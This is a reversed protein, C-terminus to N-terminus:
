STNLGQDLPQKDILISLIDLFPQYNLLCKHDDASTPLEIFM